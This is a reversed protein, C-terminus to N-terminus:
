FLQVAACLAPEVASNIEEIHGNASCIPADTSVYDLFLVGFTLACRRPVSAPCSRRITSDSRVTQRTASAYLASMENAFNGIAIALESDNRYRAADIGMAGRSNGESDHAVGSRRRSPSRRRRSQSAFQPRHRQRLRDIHGDGDIDIPLVGLTKAISQRDRCSSVCAPRESIDAPAMATTTSVPSTGEFTTPPGYARGIGTMQFDNARDIDRSWRVYRCVVLDLLGDNDVDVFAACTNWDEAGSTIGSKATVDEFRGSGGLNRYLRLGGVGTILIDDHTTISIASRWAWAM